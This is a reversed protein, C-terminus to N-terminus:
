LGSPGSLILGTRWKDWKATSYPRETLATLVHRGDFEKTRSQLDLPPNTRALRTELGANRLRDGHDLPSVM